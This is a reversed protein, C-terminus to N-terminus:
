LPALATVATGNGESSKVRIEGRIQASREKMIRLGLHESTVEDPDFGVGNDSVTMSVYNVGHSLEVNVVSANAHKAVNSLCESLIRIFHVAVHSPMAFDDEGPQTFYTEIGWQHEFNDLCEQVKESFGEEIDFPVRLFLMEDRLSKVTKASIDVLYAVDERSPTGDEEIAELLSEAALKMSCAMQALNDHMEGSIRTREELVQFEVHQRIRQEKKVQQAVVLAVLKLYDEFDEDFDHPESFLLALLGLIEGDPAQLAIGVNSLFGDELCRKTLEKDDDPHPNLFDNYVIESDLIAKLRGVTLPRSRYLDMGFTHRGYYGKRILCDKAHSFLFLSVASAGFIRALRETLVGYVTEPKQNDTYYPFLSIIEICRNKWISGSSNEAM